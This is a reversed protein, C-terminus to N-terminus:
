GRETTVVCRCPSRRTPRCRHPRSPPSASPTGSRTRRATGPTRWSSTMSAPETVPPRPWPACPPSSATVPAVPAGPRVTKDITVSVSPDIVTLTADDTAKATLGNPATVTSAVTNTLTVSPKAGTANETTAITFAANATANAQILSGTFVLEFGTVSGGPAAPVAGNAFSVDQTGGAALHYVVKAASAGAPWVPAATFGGFAVDTSFFDLDAVRLESVPVAGNTASLTSSAKQGATIQGPAINKATQVTPMSPAVTYSATADKTATRTGVAAIGNPWTTSATSPLPCIPEPTASPPASPSASGWHSPTM